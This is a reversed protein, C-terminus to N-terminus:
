EMKDESAKNKYYTRKAVDFITRASEKDTHLVMQSFRGETNTIEEDGLKKVLQEYIPGSEVVVGDDVVIM